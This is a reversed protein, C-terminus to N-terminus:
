RGVRGAAAPDEEEGARGGGGGQPEAHVPGHQGRHHLHGRVHSVHGVGCDSANYSIFVPTSSLVHVTYIVESYLLYRRVTKHPMNRVVAAAEEEERHNYNNNNNGFEREYEDYPDGEGGGIGEEDEDDDDVVRRRRQTSADPKVRSDGRLFTSAHGQEGGDM